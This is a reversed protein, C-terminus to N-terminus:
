SVIRIPQDDNFDYGALKFFKRWAAQGDTNPYLANPQPWNSEVPNLGAQEMLDDRSMELLKRDLDRLSIEFAESM